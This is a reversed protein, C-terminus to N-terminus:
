RGGRRGRSGAGGGALRLRGGRRPPRPVLRVRGTRVCEEFRPTGDTGTPRVPPERGALHRRSGAARREGHVDAAHHSWILTSAGGRSDRKPPCGLGGGGFQDRAR